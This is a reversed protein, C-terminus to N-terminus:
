RMNDRNKEKNRERRVSMIIKKEIYCKGVKREKSKRKNKGRTEKGSVNEGKKKVGEEIYKASLKGKKNEIKWQQIKKGKEGRWKKM